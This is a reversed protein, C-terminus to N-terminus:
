ESCRAAFLALTGLSDAFCGPTLFLRLLLHRRNSGPDASTPAEWAKARMVMHKLPCVSYQSGYWLRYSARVNSWGMEGLISEM